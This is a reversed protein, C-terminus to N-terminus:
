SCGEEAGGEESGLFCWRNTNMQRRRGMKYIVKRPTLPTVKTKIPSKAKKGKRKFFAGFGGM